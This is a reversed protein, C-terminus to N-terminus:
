LPGLQVTTFWGSRLTVTRQALPEATGRRQARVTVNRRGGAPVPLNLFGGSGDAATESAEPTPIGDVFYYALGGLNNRLLVGSAREGSCDSVELNVHALNPDFTAQGAQALPALAEPTALRFGAGQAYSADATVEFPYFLVPIVGDARIEFFGSFGSAVELTVVGDSGPSVSSAANCGVDIPVCARVSINTPPPGGLLDTIRIRYQFVADDEGEGGGSEAGSSCSWDDGPEPDELEPNELEPDGEAQPGDAQPGDGLPELTSAAEEALPGTQRDGNDALETCAGLALAGFVIPHRCMGRNAWRKCLRSRM